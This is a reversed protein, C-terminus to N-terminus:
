FFNKIQQVIYDLESTALETHMPLSLVEKCLNESVPFAGAGYQPSYYAQQLHLPLPYYIMSPVGKYHLYDKLEDRKNNKIKITYQHFVHSSYSSRFPILIDKLSSLHQDYYKASENRANRYQDLYKLKVKLVAAQVTDLRSNVGVVDHYYKKKQGHNAIMRMKEALDDNDSMIAGGDGFCGLNKSPFFSFCGIDGITGAKKVRGDNFKYDAGIAQATDEIVFLNHTRAFNLVGEMDACQGFLHVPVIVKTRRTIKTEIQSIDLMFTESDVDAMVPKLKLLAIVEATAVYTFAPVIVEDGEKLNLAMLAIQLADTGNACPIVNKIGNYAALDNSFEKVALGNIFDASEFCQQVVSDIEWKIRRYQSALDVMQIKM